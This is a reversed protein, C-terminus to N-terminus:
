FDLAAAIFLAVVYGVQVGVIAVIARDSAHAAASIISILVVVVIIATVKLRFLGLAAGMLAAFIFAKLM